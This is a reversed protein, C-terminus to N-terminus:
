RDLDEPLLRHDSIEQLELDEYKADLAERFRRLEEAKQKKLVRLARKCKAVRWEKQIEEELSAVSTIWKEEFADRAPKTKFYRIVVSELNGDSNKSRASCMMQYLVEMIPKPVYHVNAEMWRLQNRMKIAENLTLEYKTYPKEETAEKMKAVMARDKKNQNTSTNRHNNTALRRALYTLYARSLVPADHPLKEVIVHTILELDMWHAKVQENKPMAGKLFRRLLKTSMKGSAEYDAYLKELGRLVREDEPEEEETGIEPMKEEEEVDEQEGDDKEEEEEYWLEEQEEEENGEEDDWEEEVAADKAPEPKAKSMHSLKSM